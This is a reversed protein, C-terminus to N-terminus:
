LYYDQLFYNFEPTYKGENDKIILERLTFPQKKNTFFLFGRFCPHQPTQKVQVEDTVFFNNRTALQKFHEVRHFPLLVACHGNEALRNPIIAIMEELTLTDHHKAMNKREDSSKLDNEYFPPNCIILDYKKDAIQTKVDAHMIQLRPSWRSKSFNEKAQLYSDKDIEIADIKAECKQAAMLSLLGTGTGIDLISKPEIMKREMKEAVWAGFLCSDTCVKMSSKEQQITFQKFQFYHNPL